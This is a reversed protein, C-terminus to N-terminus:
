LNQRSRDNKGGILSKKRIAGICFAILKHSGIYIVSGLMTGLALLVTLVIIYKEQGNNLRYEELIPIMSELINGYNADFHYSLYTAAMNYFIAIGGVIFVHYFKPNCLQLAVVLVFYLVLLHHFIFSHTRYFDIGLMESAAGLMGVPYLYMGVSVSFAICAAIPRFIRSLRPGCLEALPIVLLFMSCYHFPLFRPNYDGLFNWRLKVIEFFILTIAILACPIGRILLSRRRLIIALIVAVFIIGLLVRPLIIKDYESYGM